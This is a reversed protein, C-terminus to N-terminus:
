QYKGEIVKAFGSPSVLFDFDCRWGNDSGNILFTSERVRQFFKSWWDLSKAKPYDTMRATVASTRAKTVVKVKALEPLSENYLAIVRSPTAEDLPPEIPPEESPKYSMAIDGGGTVGIDGGGSMSTVVLAQININTVSSTQRDGQYRVARQIAKMALLDNLVRSAQRESINARKAITKVSPWCVGDDNASDAIALMVLRHSGTFTTSEWVLSMLKISM